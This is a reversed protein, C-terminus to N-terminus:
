SMRCPLSKQRHLWQANNIKPDSKCKIACFPDFGALNNNEVGFNLTLYQSLEDSFSKRNLINSWYFM